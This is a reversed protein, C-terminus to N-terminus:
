GEKKNAWFEKYKKIDKDDMIRSKFHDTLIELIRNQNQEPVDFSKLSESIITFINKFSEISLWYENNHSFYHEGRFYKGIEISSKLYYKSCNGFDIEISDLQNYSSILIDLVENIDGDMEINPEESIYKYFEIPNEKLIENFKLKLREIEEHRNKGEVRNPIRVDGIHPYKNPNEKM